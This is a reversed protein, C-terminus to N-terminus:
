FAVADVYLLHYQLAPSGHSKHSRSQQAVHDTPPSPVPPPPFANQMISKHTGCFNGSVFSVPSIRRPRFSSSPSAPGQFDQTSLTHPQQQFREASRPPNGRFLPPPPPLFFLGILAHPAICKDLIKAPVGGATCGMPQQAYTPNAASKWPVCFPMRSLGIRESCRRARVDGQESAVRSPPHKDITLALPLPVPAPPPVSLHCLGM